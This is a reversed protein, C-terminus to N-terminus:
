PQIIPLDPLDADLIGACAIGDLFGDYWSDWVCHPFHRSKTTGGRYPVCVCPVNAAKQQLRHVAAEKVEKAEKIINMARGAQKDM